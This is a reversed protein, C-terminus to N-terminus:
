GHVHPAYLTVLITIGVGIAIALLHLLTEKFKCHRHLEPVLNSAAIYIFNGAAFPIMFSTFNHIKSVLVIGVVAGIIATLSSIFNLIIAKKKSLGSYLLVGLDAIEQPIEHFIVSLTTAIGITFNIAYAGAIVLGDIFNHIGDGILNVPALNYAHGHCDGSNCKKSHHNHVLKELIFMILFGLLIFLPIHLANNEEEHEDNDEEEDHKTEDEHLEIGDHIDIEEGHDLDGDHYMEPMFVIFVTSLLVGVSVSLLFLLIQKSIKKKILFPISFILSILSVVIVSIIVYLVNM